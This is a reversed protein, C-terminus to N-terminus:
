LLGLRTGLRRLNSRDLGLARAAEAWNGGADQLAQAVLERQFAEVRETFPTSEVKGREEGLGETAIHWVDVEAPEGARGGAALVLARTVVHELERVNGPWAHAELRALAAPTLTAAPLHARRRAQELFHAALLRVDGTRERLPPVRVVGGKLRFWLDERFRGQAVEERIDRNTAAVWRVDVHRPRSEGLREVEGFQLARLLKVQATLPLEGVEDLLMTGAHALEVRGLREGTAGTYAGAVHGFLEGEVLSEPLAACNLGVFPGGARPSRAHLRRAVLEKGVGTEGLILVCLDSAALTDVEELLQRIAPSEGLIPVEPPPLAAMGLRREELLQVMGASRVAAAALASLAGMWELDLHDFRGPPGADLTVVGVVQGEVELRCGMCSHVTQIPIHELFLDDFPDPRADHAPFRVPGPSALIAELRPHESVQFRRAFVEPRLGRQAVVRLAGGDCRLLAVADADVVSGLALLISEYRALGTRRQALDGALQRVAEVLAHEKGVM